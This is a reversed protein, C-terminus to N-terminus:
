SCRARTAEWGDDDRQQAPQALGPYAPIVSAGGHMECNARSRWASGSSDLWRVPEKGVLPVISDPDVIAVVRGFAFRDLVARASAENTYSWQHMHGTNTEVGYRVEGVVGVAAPSPQAVPQARENLCDLANDHGYLRAELERVRATLADITAQAKRMADDHGTLYAKGKNWEKWEEPLNSALANLEAEKKRWEEHADFRARLREALTPEQTPNSM